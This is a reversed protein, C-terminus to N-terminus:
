RHRGARAETAIHVWFLGGVIGNSVGFSLFNRVDLRGQTRLIVSLVFAWAKLAAGFMLLPVVPKRTAYLYLYYRGFTAATGSLGGVGGDAGLVGVQAGM